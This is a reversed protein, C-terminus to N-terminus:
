KQKEQELYKKISVKVKELDNDTLLPILRNIEDVPKDWWKLQSMLNILEEDFRKRILKAPNGAVISYAEIDSAVTSNAGNMIFEVGKAIQCFKGIVLMDGIFDYHHTVHSEFDDDSFYTFDDVEIRKNKLTPKINTMSTISRNPYLANPNPTKEM